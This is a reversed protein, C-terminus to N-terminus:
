GWWWRRPMRFPLMRQVVPHRFKDLWLSEHVGEVTEGGLRTRAVSRAYFPSDELTRLIRPPKGGPESRVERRVQWGTRPLRALPADALEEAVGDRGLRLGLAFRSGDRRIGDYGVLTGGEASPARMWHWSAFGDEIPESGYNMDHYGEGSWAIGDLAVEVRASPAVPMWAHRGAPDLWYPRRGHGLPELTVTGQIRRPFPCARENIRVVLTDNEWGIRSPGIRFAESTREVQSGDRETMSWLSGGRKRYLAVNLACHQM